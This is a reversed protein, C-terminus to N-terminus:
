KEKNLVKKAEAFTEEHLHHLPLVIGDDLCYSIQGLFLNVIVSSNCDKDSLISCNPLISVNIDNPTFPYHYLHKRVAENNNIEEVFLLVTEVVLERASPIDLMQGYQFSVDFDIIKGEDERGGIGCAYLGQKRMKNAFDVIVQNSSYDLDSIEFQNQSMCVCFLESILLFLFCFLKVM